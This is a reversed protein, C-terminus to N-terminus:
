RLGGNPKPSGTQVPAAGVATLPDDGAARHLRALAAEHEYIAQFVAARAQTLAALADLQEVLLGKGNQVRLTTIDFSTQSAAQASTASEYAAASTTLDIWAQGVDSRAQLTAQLLVANLRAQAAAARERGAKREGGDLLPITLVLGATYGAQPSMGDPVMGDAMAMGYLQPAGAARAGAAEHRAAELRATAALVEPRHQLSRSQWAALDGTLATMALPTTLMLATDGEVGSALALDLLAKEGGARATLLAREADAQEARARQLTADLGKGAEALARANAVMTVTASRRSEAASVMTVALQARLYADTVRLVTEARVTALDSSAARERERSARVGSELRGGTSLPVMLTLNQDVFARGPSIMLAQPMVGPASQLIGASNSAAGFTTASLQPRTLSRAMRSESAAMAVDAGAAQVLPSAGLAAQVAAALSLPRAAPSGPPGQALVSAPAVVMLLVVQINRLM